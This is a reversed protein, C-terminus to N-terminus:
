DQFKGLCDTCVFLTVNGFRGAHVKIENIGAAQCGAADCKIRAKVVQDYTQDKHVIGKLSQRTSKDIKMTTKDADM